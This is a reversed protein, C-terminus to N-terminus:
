LSGTCLLSSGTCGFFLCVGFFGKLTPGFASPDLGTSLHGKGLAAQPTGTQCVWTRM